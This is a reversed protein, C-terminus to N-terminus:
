PSSSLMTREHSELCGISYWFSPPRAPKSGRASSSSDVEGMGGAGIPSIVEYHGLRAGSELPMHQRPNYGRAPQCM